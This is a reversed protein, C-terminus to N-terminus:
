KEDFSLGKFTEYFKPLDDKKIVDDYYIQLTEISRHRTFQSVKLLDGEYERVLKTTFYHRFSHTSNDIELKNLLTKIITRISKTTLRKNLSNNSTSIFLAGDKIQWKNLYSNLSKVCEPHLYVIEKDDRGKGQVMLTKQKLNIDSVNLRIIEIQRLGQFILLSLIAELRQNNISNDLQNCYKFIQIIDQDSFGTKKHKKNQKFGKINQTIDVKLYGQRNLEKLLVKASILYKNKTSIGLDIRQTLLQKYELYTNVNFENNGLFDFFVSLGYLYDRKTGETVDFQQILQYAFQKLEKLTPNEESIVVSNKTTKLSHFM